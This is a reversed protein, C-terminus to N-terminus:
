DQKTGTIPFYTTPMEVGVMEFCSCLAQDLSSRLNIVADGTHGRVIPPIPKCLKFKVLNYVGEGDPEILTAHGDEDSLFKDIERDLETIHDKAWAICFKSSEFPDTNALDTM